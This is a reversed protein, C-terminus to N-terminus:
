ITKFFEFSKNTRKEIYKIMNKKSISKFLKNDKKRKVIFENKDSYSIKYNINNASNLISFNNLKVTGKIESVNDQINIRQTAYGLYSILINKSDNKIKFVIKGEKDSISGISEDEVYCNVGGINSNYIEDFITLDINVIKSDSKKYELENGYDFDTKDSYNLELKNKSSKYSGFGLRTATCGFSFHNFNSDSKLEIIDTVFGNESIYIGPKIEQSFLFSFNFILIVLIKTM